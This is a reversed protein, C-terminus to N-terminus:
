LSFSSYRITFRRRKFRGGFESHPLRFLVFSFRTILFHRSPTKDRVHESTSPADRRRNTQKTKNKEFPSSSLIGLPMYVCRDHTRTVVNGWCVGENKDTEIKRKTGRRLEVVTIQHCIRITTTARRRTKNEDVEPASSSVKQWFVCVCHVVFFATRQKRSSSLPRNTVIHSLAMRVANGSSHGPLTCQGQACCRRKSRINNIRMGTTRLQYRIQQYTAVNHKTSREM